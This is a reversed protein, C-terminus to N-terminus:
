RPGAQRKRFHEWMLEPVAHLRIPGQLANVTASRVGRGDFTVARLHMGMPALERDLELLLSEVRDFFKGYHDM